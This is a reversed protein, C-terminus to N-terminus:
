NVIKTNKNSTKQPYTNPKRYFIVLINKEIELVFSRDEGRDWMIGRKTQLNVM